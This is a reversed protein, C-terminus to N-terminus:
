VKGKKFSGMYYTNKGDISSSLEGYGHFVETDESELQGIYKGDELLVMRTGENRFMTRYVYVNGSADVCWLVQKLNPNKQGM